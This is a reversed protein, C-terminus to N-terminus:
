DEDFAYCIGKMVFAAAEPPQKFSKLTDIDSKKIQKLAEQADALIPLVKDLEKKCDERLVNASERQVNCEKEEEECKEKKIDAEKSSKQLIILMKSNEETQQVLQPQLEHLEIKMGEVVSETTVIKQVGTDYRKIQQQMMDQRSSTLKKFTALLELYSTPTVYYYRRLEDLYRRSLKIIRM